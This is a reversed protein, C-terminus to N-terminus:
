ADEWKFEDDLTAAVGAAAGAGGEGGGDQEQQGQQQGAGGEVDEWEDVGDGAAQQAQHWTADVDAAAAAAPEEKPLLTAAQVGVEAKVGAAEWGAETKIRKVDKKDDWDSGGGGAQQAAKARAMDALYQQLYAEQVRRRAEADFDEASAAAPAAPEVTDDSATTNSALGSPGAGGGNRRFWAPLEKGPEEEASATAAGGGGLHVQPCLVACCLMFCRPVVSCAGEQQQPRAKKYPEGM